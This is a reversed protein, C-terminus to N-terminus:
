DELYEIEGELWKIDRGLSLLDRVGHVTAGASVLMITAFIATLMSLFGRYKKGCKALLIPLVATLVLSTFLVALYKKFKRIINKQM